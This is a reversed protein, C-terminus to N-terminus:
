QSPKKQNTKQQILRLEHIIKKAKEKATVDIDRKTLPILKMNDPTTRAIDSGLQGNAGIITVKM